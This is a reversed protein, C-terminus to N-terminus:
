EKQQLFMAEITLKVEDGVYPGWSMATLGFDSRKITVTGHFGLAYSNGMPNQRGGEFTADLTVSKTVNEDDSRRDYERHHPRYECDVHFNFIATLFILADFLGSRGVLDGILKQSPVDISTM